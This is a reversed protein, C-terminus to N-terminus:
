AGHRCRGRDDGGKCYEINKAGCFGCARSAQKGNPFVIATDPTLVVLRSKTKFLLAAGNVTLTEGAKIETVLPM